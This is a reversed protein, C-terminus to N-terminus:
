WGGGGPLSVAEGAREAQLAPPTSGSQERRPKAGAQAAAADRVGLQGWTPAQGHRKEAAVALSAGRARGLRPSSSWLRPQWLTSLKDGSPGDASPPRQATRRPWALGWSGAGRAAATGWGRRRAQGRQGPRSPRLPELAPSRSAAGAGKGESSPGHSAPRRKSQRVVLRARGVPPSSLTISPDGALSGRRSRSRRGEPRRRSRKSRQPVAQRPRRAPRPARAAATPTTGGPDPRRGLSRRWPPRACSVPLRRRGWGGGLPRGWRPPARVLVRRRRLAPWGQGGGRRQPHSLRAGPMVGARDGSLRRLSPRMPQAPSGGQLAPPCALRQPQGARSAGQAGLFRSRLPQPGTSWAHGDVPYSAKRWWLPAQTGWAQHWAQPRLACSRVTTGNALASGGWADPARETGAATLPMPVPLARAGGAGGYVHWPLRSPSSRPGTRHSVRARGASGLGLGAKRGM